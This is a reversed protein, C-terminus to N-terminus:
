DMLGEIRTSPLYISHMSFLRSSRFPRQSQDFLTQARVKALKLRQADKRQEARKLNDFISKVQKASRPAGERLFTLVKSATLCVSLGFLCLIHTRSRSLSDFLNYDWDM